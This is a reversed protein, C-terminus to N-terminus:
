IIMCQNEQSIKVLAKALTLFILHTSYKGKQYRFLKLKTFNTETIM